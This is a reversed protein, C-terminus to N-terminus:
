SCCLNLQLMSSRLTTERALKQHKNADCCTKTIDYQIYDVENISAVVSLTYYSFRTKTESSCAARYRTILSYSSSHMLLLYHEVKKIKKVAGTVNKQRWLRCYIEDIDVTPNVACCQAIMALYYLYIELEFRITMTQLHVLCEFLVKLQLKM